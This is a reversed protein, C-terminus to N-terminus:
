LHWGGGGRLPLSEKKYGYHHPTAGPSLKLNTLGGLWYITSTEIGPSKRPDQVQAIVPSAPRYPAAWLLVSLCHKAGQQRHTTVKIERASSLLPLLSIFTQPPPCSTAPSRKFPPPKPSPRSAQYSYHTSIFFSPHLSSFFSLFFLPILYLFCILAGPFITFSTWSCTSFTNKYGKYQFHELVQLMLRVLSSTLFASNWAGGRVKQNLIWMKLLDWHGSFRNIM